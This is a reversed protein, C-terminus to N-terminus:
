KLKKKDVKQKMLWIRSKKKRKAVKKESKSEYESYSCDCDFWDEAGCSYCYSSDKKSMEEVIKMDSCSCDFWNDAQCSHCSFAM